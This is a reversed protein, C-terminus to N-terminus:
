ASYTVPQITLTWDPYSDVRLYYTGAPVGYQYSDGGGAPAPRALIENDVLYHNQALAPYNPVRATSEMEFVFNGGYRTAGHQWTFHYDGAPLTFPQTGQVSGSGSLTVSGDDPNVQLCTPNPTSTCSASGEALASAPLITIGALLGAAIFSLNLKHM